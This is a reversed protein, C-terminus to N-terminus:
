DIYTIETKSIQIGKDLIIKIFTSGVPIKSCSYTAAPFLKYENFEPIFNEKTLELKTFLDLNRSALVDIGTEPETLFFDVSLSNITGNIKYIISSGEKGALRNRDEKARVIEKMTLFEFDGDKKFIKKDDVMEDIMIKEKVTVPSIENSWKSEGSENVAKIRYSYDQGIIVSSDSFQPKYPWIADTINNSIVKWDSDNQRREITYSTAGASGQWSIKFPTEIPLLTPVAPISKGDIEYAKTRVLKMLNKEDFYNGSEFGPWRYATGGNDSSHYYFGGDDNHFRLSWMLIGSASDNIVTNIVNKVDETSQFGFEGVYYPKKGKSIALSEKIYKIAIDGKSYYHTSVVDINPDKIQDEPVSRVASNQIVLHNKDLSKIYKAIEACWSYPCRLENGTEWGLISKDEKYPIGTISNKRNVYFEITKKFDSILLSDTWFANREMGRFDAYEKAGGWWKWNDLIPLIVRIGEENAIKLVRDIAVFAKENFKGPALVHRIIKESENNKRVSLTYTRAIKGGSHKISRLADRIEFDTPLRWPNTAKFDMYDEIYHLNPINYSVFRFEKEGDMLKDKKATIYNSFGTSCNTLLFGLVFVPVAAILNSHFVKL